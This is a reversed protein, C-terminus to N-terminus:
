KVFKIEYHYRAQGTLPGIPNRSDVDISILTDYKVTEILTELYERVEGPAMSTQEKIIEYRRADRSIKVNEDNIELIKIDNGWYKELRIVDNVQLNGEKVIEESNDMIDFEIVQFKVGTNNIHNVLLLTSVIILILVGAVILVIKKM